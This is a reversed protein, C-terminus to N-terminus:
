DEAMEFKVGVHGAKDFSYYFEMWWAGVPKPPRGKEIHYGGKPTYEQKFTPLQVHMQKDFYLRGGNTCRQRAVSFLWQEHIHGFVVIDADPVYPAVRSPNITGKTVPGGGGWGHHYFLRRQTRDGGGPREFMMRIWGSYGMHQVQLRRCLHDLLDVEINKRIATEHNGDSMMVLQAAYPELFEASDDVILDLYNDANHADRVGTKSRRPDSRGGMADFWDGFCMVGAGSERAEDLHRRLLRRDCLPNDFHVDAILLYRQSWGPEVVPHRLTLVNRGTRECHM